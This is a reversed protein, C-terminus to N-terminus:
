QASWVVRSVGGSSVTEVCSLSFLRDIGATVREQELGTKEMLYEALVSIVKKHGAEPTEFSRLLEKYIISSAFELAKINNIMQEESEKLPEKNEYRAIIKDVYRKIGGNFEGVIRDVESAPMTVSEAVSRNADYSDWDDSLIRMGFSEPNERIETGPFPALIHFGYSPSLRKAFALTETVTEPTEGPLGLIYSTMPMIGADKCMAVAKECMDLSIKKKVKDLIKQNGSEIGFCLTTCGAGKMKELLEPSVTDVRAFATWEHVIGRRNIEDCIKVCRERNSTFLDDVINIQRFKMKSLMEFEDVVREVSFYRVRRGVMRSGVCFVCEFPCGRSTVMNVPLGLARYKSLQVLDRAPFPLVNIDAIFDRGPNHVIADGKRFSIGKIEDFDRAALSNMLELTTIEGEGRVIMDVAPSTGLVGDADFTVHPGGMLTVIEPFRQKIATLIKIAPNVNMTVATTGVADPAFKEVAELILPEDSPNVICDYITVDVGNDRLYAALSILGFPPSPSEEFPYPPNILLLKM